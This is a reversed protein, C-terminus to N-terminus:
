FKKNQFKGKFLKQRLYQSIIHMIIHFMDESVGYNDSYVDFNIKSLKKLIPNYFGTFSIVDIKNKKAYDAVKILNKSNGSVSFIVLLDGSNGLCQLQLKFLESFNLDNAIALGLDNNASLSQFKSKLQGDVLLGKQFDCLFHNSISSSGGNGCFFISKNQKIKKLIIRSIEEIQLINVKKLSLELSKQYGYAYEKITKIKKQPFKNRIM